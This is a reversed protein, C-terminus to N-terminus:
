SNITETWWTFEATIEGTIEDDENLAELEERMTQELKEPPCVAPDFDIRTIHTFQWATIGEEWREEAEEPGVSLKATTPGIDLTGMRKIAM